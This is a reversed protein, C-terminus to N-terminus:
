ADCIRICKELSAIPDMGAAPQYEHAVYGTFGLDAIVKMVYPWYLEQTHDLENRAGANNSVPPNGGTHFHAIWQFNERINRVINGDMVQSHFIDFLVKVRPSNVRKAVGFVWAAHDGQYRNELPQTQNSSILEPCLNVGKDEARAKLSNLLAVLGDANEEDSKTGRTGTTLIINPFGNQAAVDITESYIKM